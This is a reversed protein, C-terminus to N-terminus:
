KRKIYDKKTEFNIEKWIINYGKDAMMKDHQREEQADLYSIFHKVGYYILCIFIIAAMKYREKLSGESM